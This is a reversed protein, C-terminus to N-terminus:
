EHVGGASQSGGFLHHWWSSVAGTHASHAPSFVFWWLAGLAALKLLLGLNFERRLGRMGRLRPRTRITFTRVRRPIIKIKM